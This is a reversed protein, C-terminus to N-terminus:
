SSIRAAGRKGPEAGESREGRLRSLTPTLSIPMATKNDPVAYKGHGNLRLTRLYPTHAISRSREVRGYSLQISYQNGFGLTVPEVGTPRVLNLIEELYNFRLSGRYSVGM